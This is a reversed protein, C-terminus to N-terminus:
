FVYANLIYDNRAEAQFSKKNDALQNFLSISPAIEKKMGVNGLHMTFMKMMRPSNLISWYPVTMTSLHFSNMKQSTLLKTNRRTSLPFELTPLLQAPIRMSKTPSFILVLLPQKPQDMNEQSPLLTNLLRALSDRSCVFVERRSLVPKNHCQTLQDLM